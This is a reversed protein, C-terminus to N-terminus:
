DCFSFRSLLWGTKNRIIWFNSYHDTSVLTTMPAIMAERGAAPEECQNIGKDETKATEM